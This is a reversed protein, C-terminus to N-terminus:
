SEPHYPPYVDKKCLDYAQERHLKEGYDPFYWALPRYVRKGKCTTRGWAVVVARANTSGGAVSYGPWVFDGTGTGTATARGWNKWTIKSVAGTPDGGNFISRPHAHGYGKQYPGWPGGLVIPKRNAAAAPGAALGCALAVVCVGIARRLQLAQRM